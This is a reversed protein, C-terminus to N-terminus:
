GGKRLLELAPGLREIAGTSINDVSIQAHSIGERHYARLGEAIEEPSGNLPKLPEATEGTPLADWWPNDNSEATLITVSRQLTAPDRGVEVCAEDVLARLPTLGEVSNNTHAWYANWMDAYKATLRLMKHGTTGIMIPPGEPRGGRPRLVCDRASYFRGEFDIEGNRLLGHVIQLAEEFRAYRNDYPYGFARYEVEHYGAGVGLILRGDSIEDVTDAIKALLAPNRFGMGLVLHGLEVTKTHAAIATLMAWSERNGNPEDNGDYHYLLHDDVWISDFGSDEAAMAIDRLEKWGLGTRDNLPMDLGVKMRGQTASM